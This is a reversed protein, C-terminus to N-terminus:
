WRAVQYLSRGVNEGRTGHGSQASWRGRPAGCTGGFTPRACHKLGLRQSAHISAQDFPGVQDFRGQHDFRGIKLGKSPIISGWECTELHTSLM